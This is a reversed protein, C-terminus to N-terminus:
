APWDKRCGVNAIVTCLRIAPDRSREIVATCASWATDGCLLVRNRCMAIVQVSGSSEASDDGQGTLARRYTIRAPHYFAWGTLTVERLISPSYLHESVPLNRRYDNTSTAYSEVAEIRGIESPDFFVGISLCAFRYCGSLADDLSNNSYNDDNNTM